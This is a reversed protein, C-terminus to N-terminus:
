VVSKRDIVVVVIDYRARLVVYLSLPLLDDMSLLFNGDLLAQVELKLEKFTLHIVLLKDSPTFTTSRPSFLPIYCLLNQHNVYSCCQVPTHKGSSSFPRWLLPSALTELAPSSRPTSLFITQFVPM